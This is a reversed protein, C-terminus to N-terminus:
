LGTPGNVRARDLFADEYSDQGRKHGDAREDLVPDTVLVVQRRVGTRETEAQCPALPGVEAAIERESTVKLCGGQGDKRQNITRKERDKTDFSNEM